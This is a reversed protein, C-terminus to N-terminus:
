RAPKLGDREPDPETIKGTIGNIIWHGAEPEKLDTRRKTNGFYYNTGGIFLYFEAWPARSSRAMISKVAEAPNIKFGNPTPVKEIPTPSTERWILTFGRGQGGNSACGVLLLIAVAGATTIKM